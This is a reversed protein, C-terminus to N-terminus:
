WRWKVLVAKFGRGVASGLHVRRKSQAGAPTRRDLLADVGLGVGAGLAGFIVGGYAYQGFTLDSDRVAHTFAVGIGAGVAAGILAGNILSDRAQAQAPRGVLLFAVVLCAFHVRTRSSILSTMLNLALLFRDVARTSRDPM